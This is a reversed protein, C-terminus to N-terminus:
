KEDKTVLPVFVDGYKEYDNFTDFDDLIARRLEQELDFSELM